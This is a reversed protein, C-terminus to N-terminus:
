TMETEPELTTEGTVVQQEDAHLPLSHESVTAQQEAAALGSGTAAAAILVAALAVSRVSM